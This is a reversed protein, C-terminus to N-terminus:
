QAGLSKVVFWLNAPREALRRMYWPFWHEGYSILVRVRHGGAVLDRQLAARIGYLMAFEYASGPIRRSVIFDVLRDILRSDHTALHIVPAGGSSARELVRTALAFYQADVESKRAIAVHAPELYAGKVIRISVGADLLPGIDQASRHLYAQVAVGVPLARQRLMHVLRLTREVSPSAEMDIWLYKGAAHARAALVEVYRSCLAQDLDLGLQSPKVSVLADLRRSELTDILTQYHQAVAEAEGPTTLNEGLHTLIASIGEAELCTAAEVADDLREGPM